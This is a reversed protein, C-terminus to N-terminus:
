RTAVAATTAACGEGADRQKPNGSAAAPASRMRPQDARGHAAVGSRQQQSAPRGRRATSPAGGRSRSGITGVATAVLRRWRSSRAPVATRGVAM